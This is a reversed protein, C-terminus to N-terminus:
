LKNKKDENELIDILPQYNMRIAQDLPSIDPGVKFNPNGGSKLLLKVLEIDEPKKMYFIAYWLPERNNNDLISIDAGNKLLLNAIEIRKEWSPHEIPQVDPLLHLPTKGYINKLNPDAGCELLLKVSKVLELCVATMLLTTKMGAESLNIDTILGKELALELETTDKTKVLKFIDKNNM